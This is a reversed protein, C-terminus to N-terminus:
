IASLFVQLSQERDLQLKKRLRSRSIKISDTKQYMITAIDKTNLGLKLFICLKLETATLKPFKDLLNKQFENNSSNFALEFRQWSDNNIKTKIKDIINDFLLSAEKDINQTKEYFQELDKTIALNFKNNRILLLTNEALEKNKLEVIQKYYETVKIVSQVRAVLEVPEIPKRIYDIAGTELALKLDSPTLMIATAMIVPINKTKSNRKLKKILGIGDLVPMDWDTIILDPIRSIALNYAVQGNKAPFFNYHTYEESLIDIISNIIHSNDDVVLINQKM